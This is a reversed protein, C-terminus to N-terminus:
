GIKEVTLKLDFDLNAGQADDGIEKDITYRVIM